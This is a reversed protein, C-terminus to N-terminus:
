SEKESRTNVTEIHSDQTEMHDSCVRLFTVIHNLKPLSLWGNVLKSAIKPVCEKRTRRTFSATPQLIQTKLM